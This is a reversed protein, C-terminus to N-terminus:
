GRSSLRVNNKAGHGVRNVLDIIGQALTTRKWRRRPKTGPGGHVVLADVSLGIAIGLREPRSEGALEVPRPRPIPDEVPLRRVGLPEDPPPDVRTGVAQVTMEAPRPFVFGRE